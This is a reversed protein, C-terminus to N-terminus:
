RGRNAWEKSAAALIDRNTKIAPDAAKEHAKLHLKWDAITKAVVLIILLFVPQGLAQIAFGGFVIAVHLALMRPYPAAMELPVSTRTNEGRGLYNRFFSYGHSIILGLVAWKLDGSLRSVAEKFAGGIISDGLFSVVFVGHVLCFIGYHITFFGATVIKGGPSAQKVNLIRLISFGGVVLNEAWYILIIDLVDWKFFITGFLPVLNAIILFTASSKVSQSESTAPNNEVTGITRNAPAIELM